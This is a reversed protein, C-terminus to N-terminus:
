AADSKQQQCKQAIGLFHGADIKELVPAAGSTLIEAWCEEVSFGFLAAERRAIRFKSLFQILEGASFDSGGSGVESCIRGSRILYQLGAETIALIEAAQKRSFKREPNKYFEIEAFGVLETRDFALAEFNRKSPDRFFAMKRDQIARVLDVLGLGYRSVIKLARSLPVHAETASESAQFLQEMDKDLAALNFKRERLIRTATLCGVLDYDVLQNLETLTLGVAKAAVETSTLWEPQIDSNLYKRYTTPLGIAANSQYRSHQKELRKEVRSPDALLLKRLQTAHIETIAPGVQTLERWVQFGAQQWDSNFDPDLVLRYANAMLRNHHQPEFPLRIRPWISPAFPMAAHLFARYLKELDVREVNAPLGNSRPLGRSNKWRSNCAECGKLLMSRWKLQAGCNPCLNSIETGHKKCFIVHGLQWQYKLYGQEAVCAPCIRPENVSIDRIVRHEDFVKYHRAFVGWCTQYQFGNLCGVDQLSQFLAENKESRLSLNASIAFNLVQSCFQKISKFGYWCALRLVYGRLSEDYHPKPRYPLKKVM